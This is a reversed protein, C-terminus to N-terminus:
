SFAKSTYGNVRVRSTPGSYLVGIWNVFDSHFGMKELTHELYLWDVRDFAKEADLSLLMSTQQNQKASSIINLTRINDIGQRGPIFGTQDPKIIKNICKQIQKAMTSLIKVDSCLLSIPRYSACNTPDKGEKPIM